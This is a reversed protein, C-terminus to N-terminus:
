VMYPTGSTITKKCLVSYICCYYYETLVREYYTVCYNSTVLVLVMSCVLLVLSTDVHCVMSRIVPFVTTGLRIRKLDSSKWAMILGVDCVSWLVQKPGIDHKMFTIMVKRIKNDNIHILTLWRRLVQNVHKSPSTVLTHTTRFWQHSM